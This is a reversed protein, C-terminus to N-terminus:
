GESSFSSQLAAFEGFRDKLSEYLAATMGALRRYAEHAEPNPEHAGSADFAIWRGVASIDPEAGIAHLGLWAAGLGSSEVTHTVRVPTGLADALMQRLFPSRAFGGSARTERAKGGAQELLRAVAGIQLVVGELLARLAHRVDHRLSFGFFVGRADANWYPAREGTLLPLFLLGGAGIPAEQALRVLRDYPEEGALRAAETEAAFLNDCAWRLVIGGNNVAGGIVWLRDTLAYCFLRGEPDFAPRDVVSRVAGSTGITVATVGPEVAGTGLNALVGDSAGVVFPTDPRLGMARAYEASLGTMVSTTPAPESLRDRTLGAAALAEDHWDLKELNFLGTASALSYDIVFRGFLRAFVYEKIGVWRRVSAHLEPEREKLWILKVLPSMPHIPTGTSKYFELGSGDRRLREAVAASRTDAWTICPTIPRNDGDLGILSHMAASFSVCLVDGPDIGSRDMVTRVGKVVSEFLLDPDQEAYGPKPTNLPYDISHSARVRGGGDVALIKVATTGIDVAIVTGCHENRM